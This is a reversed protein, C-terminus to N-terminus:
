LGTALSVVCGPGCASVSCLTLSGFDTQGTPYSAGCATSCSSGSSACAIQCDRFNVCDSGKGCAAVQSPCHVDSCVACDSADASPAGTDGADASPNRSSGSGGDGSSADDGGADDSTSGSGSEIAENGPSGDPPIEVTGPNTGSMAGPELTGTTALLGDRDLGCAPLAMLALPAAMARFRVGM